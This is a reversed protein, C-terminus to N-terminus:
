YRELLWNKRDGEPIGEMLAREGKKVFFYKKIADEGM